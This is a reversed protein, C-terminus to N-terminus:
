LFACGPALVAKGLGKCTAGGCSGGVIPAPSGQPKCSAEWQWATNPLSWAERGRTHGDALVWTGGAAGGDNDVGTSPGTGWLTHTAQGM